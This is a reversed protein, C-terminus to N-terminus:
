NNFTLPAGTTWDLVNLSISAIGTETREDDNDNNKGLMTIKVESIVYSANKQLVPLTFVYYSQVTGGVPAGSVEGHIVLRTHRADTSSTWSNVPAADPVTPNPYTYWVRNVLSQVYESAASGDTPLAIDLSHDSILPNVAANNQDTLKNYWVTPAYDTTTLMADGAVNKLYMETIRFTCGELYNNHFDVTVKKLEIRSHLRTVDISVSNGDEVVTVDKEGVMILYTSGSYYNDELRTTLARFDTETPVGNIKAHNTVAWVHKAGVLSTIQMSNSQVYKDIELKGTSANFIFVQLSYVPQDSEDPVASLLAKTSTGVEIFMTGTRTEAPVLVENGPESGVPSKDCSAIAAMLALSAVVYFLKRM